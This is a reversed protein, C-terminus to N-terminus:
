TMFAVIISFFDIILNMYKVNYFLFLKNITMKYNSCITINM